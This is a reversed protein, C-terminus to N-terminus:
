YQTLQGRGRTKKDPLNVDRTALSGCSGSALPSWPRSIAPLIRSSTRQEGQRKASKERAHDVIPKACGGSLGTPSSSHRQIKISRAVKKQDWSKPALRDISGAPAAGLLVAHSPARSASLWLRPFTGRGRSTTFLAAANGSRLPAPGSTMPRTLMHGCGDKNAWYEWTGWTESSYPSYERKRADIEGQSVPIQNHGGAAEGANTRNRGGQRSVTPRNMTTMPRRAPYEGADRDRQLRHWHVPGDCADPDLRSACCLVEATQRFGPGM